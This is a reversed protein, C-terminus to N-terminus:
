GAPQGYAVPFGCGPKQSPSQGFQQQLEPLDPTTFGTGDLLLVRHGLWRDAAALASSSLAHETVWLLLRRFVALPVRQRAQCYAGGTFRRGSLHPLADCALNGHLIQLFFLRLTVMPTLVRERWTMGAEICLRRLVDEGAVCEQWQRKFQGLVQQISPFM